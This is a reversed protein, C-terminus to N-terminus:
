IDFRVVIAEPLEGYVFPKAGMAAEFGFKKYYRALKLTCSGFGTEIKRDHICYQMLSTILNFLVNGGKRYDQHIALRGVEGIKRGKMGIIFTTSWNLDPYYTQFPFSVMPFERKIQDLATIEKVWPAFHTEKSTTIRIYAIPVGDAFAGFHLARLDYECIDHSASLNVLKNLHNDEAYVKFRLNFLRKLEDANIPERYQINM